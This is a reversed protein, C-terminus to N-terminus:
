SKLWDTGRYVLIPADHLEKAVIVKAHCDMCYWIGSWEEYTRGGGQFRPLRLPHLPEKCNPCKYLKPM